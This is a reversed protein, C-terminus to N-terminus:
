GTVPQRTKLGPETALNAANLVCWVALEVRSSIGLKCFTNNLHTDVTHVSIGLASAIEKNTAAAAVLEAVAQESKTLPRLHAPPREKSM